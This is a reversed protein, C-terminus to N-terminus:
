DLSSIDDSNDDSSINNVDHVDDLDLGMMTVNLGSM